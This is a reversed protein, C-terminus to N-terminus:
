RSCLALALTAWAALGVILLHSFKMALSVCQRWATIGAVLTALMVLPGGFLVGFAVLGSTTDQWQQMDTLQLKNMLVATGAVLSPLCLFITAALSYIGKSGTSGQNSSVTDEAM